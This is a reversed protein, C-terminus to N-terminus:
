KGLARFEGTVEVIVRYGNLLQPIQELLEPSKKATFVKICPEGEYEGQAIGVVGPVAMIISAHEKLVSEIPEKQM